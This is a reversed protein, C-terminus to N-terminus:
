APSTESAGVRPREPYMFWNAGRTSFWLKLRGAEEGQEVLTGARRIPVRLDRILLGAGGPHLGLDSAVSWLSAASDFANSGRGQSGRRPAPCRPMAEQKLDQPRPRLPSIVPRRLILQSILLPHALQEVVHEGPHGGIEPLREDQELPLLV